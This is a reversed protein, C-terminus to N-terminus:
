QIKQFRQVMGTPVNLDYNKALVFHSRKLIDMFAAELAAERPLACRLVLGVSAVLHWYGKQLHKLLVSYSMNPIHSNTTQCFHIVCIPRTQHDYTVFFKPNMNAFM